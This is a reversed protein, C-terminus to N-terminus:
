RDGNASLVQAAMNGRWTDNRDYVELGGRYDLLAEVDAAMEFRNTPAPAPQFASRLTRYLHSKSAWGQSLAVAQPFQKLHTYSRDELFENHGTCIVFLDPEYALCERVIPVLRYSAYSIGGCNISEWNRDPSAAELSLGLWTSYSTEKSYPRGKVTSGGFSFIRFSDTPKKAPFSEPSFFKLKTKAIAYSSKDASLEFLPRIGKFGVFPDEYTPATGIGLLRLFVETIPLVSFGLIM